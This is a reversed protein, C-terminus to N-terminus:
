RKKPKILKKVVQVTYRTFVAPNNGKATQKVTIYCAGPKASMRVRTLSARCRGSSTVTVKGANKKVGARNLFINTAITRKIRFQMRTRVLKIGLSVKADATAMVVTHSGFSIDKPLPVQGNYSGDSAVTFRKLLRPTSMLVIEGTQSGPLGYARAAVIGGRTVQIVGGSVVEAPLNTQNLASILVAANGAKVLTVSEVPVNLKESPDDPNVLLNTLEAGDATNVIKIDNKAGAPLLKSIEAVIEKATEQIEASSADTSVKITEVAVTRGNIVAVASGAAATLTAQNASTVLSPASPRPITTTTVSVAVNPNSAPAIPVTTTTTTTTTTSANVTIVGAVYTIGYTAVSGGSCTTPYTGVPSSSTYTTTCTEGSRSVGNVSPTGTITPANAGVILTHSSATVTLPNGAVVDVYNAVGPGAATLARIRCRYGTGNVVATSNVFSLTLPSGAFNIATSAGGSPLSRCQHDYGTIAGYTSPPAAFTISFSGSSGTGVLNTTEVPTTPTYDVARLASGMEGAADGINDDPATITGIGLAGSGYSSGSNRGWCKVVALSTYVCAYRGALSIVMVDEGASLNVDIWSLGSMPATNTGYNTTNGQGLQGKDNSGWCKIRNTNTLACSGAFGSAIQVISEGASLGFNIPSLGAVEGAADGIKVTTALDQGLDGFFNAGWCIVTANDRLVCAGYSTAGIAVASRGTGLNVPTLADGMEGAADGIKANAGTISGIGLQGMGNEGWCLVSGSPLNRSGGSAIVCSFNYGSAIASVTVGAGLDVPQLAAMEGAADGIKDNPATVTGLGLQGASNNGWCKLTGNVLLVCLHNSNNNERHQGGIVIEQVAVNGLPIAAGIGPTVQTSGIGLQGDSNSGWCRVGGNVDLLCSYGGGAAIQSVRVPAGSSSTPIMRTLGGGMDSPSDGIVQPGYVSNIGGDSDGGWCVPFGDDRLVCAHAWGTSFKKSAARAATNSSPIGNSAARVEPQIAILGTVAIVLPLLM